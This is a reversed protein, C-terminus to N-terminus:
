LAQKKNFYKIFISTFLNFYIQIFNSITTYYLIIQLNSYSTISSYIIRILRFIYLEALRTNYCYHSTSIVISYTYKVSVVGRRSQEWQM